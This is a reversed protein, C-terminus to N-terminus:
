SSSSPGIIVGKTKNLSDIVEDSLQLHAKVLEPPTLALWQALSIDQYRDPLVIMLIYKRSLL